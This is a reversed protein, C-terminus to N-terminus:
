KEMDHHFCLSVNTKGADCVSLLSMYVDALYKGGTLRSAKRRRVGYVNHPIRTDYCTVM